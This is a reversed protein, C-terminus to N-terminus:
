DFKHFEESPETAPLKVPTVAPQLMLAKLAAIEARLQEMEITSTSAGNGGSVNQATVPLTTTQPLLATKIQEANAELVVVYKKHAIKSRGIINNYNEWFRRTAATDPVVTERGGQLIVLGKLAM